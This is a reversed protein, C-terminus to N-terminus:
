RSTRAGLGLKGQVIRTSTPVDLLDLALEAESGIVDSHRSLFANCSEVM